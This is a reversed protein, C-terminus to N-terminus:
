WLEQDSPNTVLTVLTVLTALTNIFSIAAGVSLKDLARSEAVRNKWKVPM